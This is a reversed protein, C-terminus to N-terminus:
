VSGAAAGGGVCGRHDAIIRAASAGGIYRRQLVADRLRRTMHASRPSRLCAMANDYHMELLSIPDAPRVKACLDIARAVGEDEATIHDEARGNAAIQRGVAPALAIHIEDENPEGGVARITMRPHLTVPQMPMLRLWRVVAEAAIGHARIHDDSM